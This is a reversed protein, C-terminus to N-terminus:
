RQSHSKHHTAYRQNASRARFKDRKQIQIDKFARLRCLICMPLSSFVPSCQIRKNHRSTPNGEMLKHVSTYAFIAVFIYIYINLAIAEFFFLCLPTRKFHRRIKKWDSNNFVNFRFCEFFAWFTRHIWIVSYSILISQYKPVTGATSFEAFICM